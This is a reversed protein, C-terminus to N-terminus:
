FVLLYSVSAVVHSVSISSPEVDPIKDPSEPPKVDQLEEETFEYNM